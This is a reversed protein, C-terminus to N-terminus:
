LATVCVLNRSCVGRRRLTDGFATLIEGDSDSCCSTRVEFQKLKGYFLNMAMQRLM